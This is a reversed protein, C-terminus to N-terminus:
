TPLLQRKGRGRSRSDIARRENMTAAAAAAPQAAKVAGARVGMAKDVGLAYILGRRASDHGGRWPHSALEVAHSHPREGCSVSSTSTRVPGRLSPRIDLGAGEVVRISIHCRARRGLAAEARADVLVALFM